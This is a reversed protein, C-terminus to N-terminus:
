KIFALKRGDMIFGYGIKANPWIVTLAIQDSLRLAYKLNKATGIRQLINKEIFTNLIKNVQSKSLGTLEEVQSRSLIKGNRFLELMMAESRNLKLDANICPLIVSISNEYVEYVPKLISDKYTENIRQIGTGFQEIYKLRFFVNAIIPNRLLSVKGKLYESESLGAPLTGPSSIDIKDHFMSVKIHSKTDWLRHVLANAIAERFAKQPILEIKKRETSDIREIEYYLRFVELAKHFQELVSIKELTIRNTIEDISDGFCVIDIGKYHNQDAFLAGANNIKGESNMLQLTKLTDTSFENINLTDMLIKKLSEFTLTQDVCIQEEYSQNSGELILRTLELRDVEITSSDSRKYAKNHYLYPKHLGEKVMLTITKDANTELFFEPLPDLNDNVMNEIRLCDQVPDSMGAIKLDDTIGFIIKGDGYNAFASVSKLFSKSISEKYELTKSERDM